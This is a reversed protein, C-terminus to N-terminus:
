IEGISLTVYLDKIIITTLSFAMIRITMISLTMTGEFSCWSLIIKLFEYLTKEFIWCSTLSSPTIIVLGICFVKKVEALITILQTVTLWKCGLRINTSFGLLRVKSPLGTLSEVWTPEVRAQLYRVLTSIVSLSLLNLNNWYMIWQLWVYNIVLGLCVPM